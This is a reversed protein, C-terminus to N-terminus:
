GTAQLRPCDISLNDSLVARSVKCNLEDYMKPEVYTALKVRLKNVLPKITSGQFIYILIGVNLLDNIDVLSM